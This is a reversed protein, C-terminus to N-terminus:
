SISKIDRSPESPGPIIGLLIINQRKFRCYYPLNLITLYMAGVSAKTLKFPQFWDINLMVAYVYPSALAPQGNIYQFEKWIKGDYIDRLETNSAPLSRWHECLEVFGPRLLLNQLSGTLGQYCFVKFPYLLLKGSVLKVSRLLLAGCQLRSNPDSRYTCTKSILRVGHRDICNKFEYVSYCKRCVVFRTFEEKIGFYKQLKYVSNPFSAALHAVFDSHRGIICLFVYLFKLLCNVASDPIYHKAQLRLLFILLWTLLMNESRLTTADQQPFASPKDDAQPFDSELEIHDDDEWM